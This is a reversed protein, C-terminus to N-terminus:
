EAAARFCYLAGNTRVLVDNGAIAPTAWVEEDLQHTSVV